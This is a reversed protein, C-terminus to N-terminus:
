WSLKLCPFQRTGMTVVNDCSGRPKILKLRNWHGYMLLQGVLEAVLLVCVSFSVNDVNQWQNKWGSARWYFIWYTPNSHSLMKQFLWKWIMTLINPAGGKGRSLLWRWCYLRYLIRHPRKQTASLMGGVVAAVIERSPGVKSRGQYYNRKIGMKGHNSSM